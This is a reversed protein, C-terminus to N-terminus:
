AGIAVMEPDRWALFAGLARMGEHFAASRSGASGCCGCTGPPQLASQLIDPLVRTGGGLRVAPQMGEQAWGVAPAKGRNKRM